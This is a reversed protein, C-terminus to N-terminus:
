PSVARQTPIPMPAASRQSATLRRRDSLELDRAGAVDREHRDVVACVPRLRREEALRREPRELARQALELAAVEARGHDRALREEEGGAGVDGLERVDGALARDLACAGSVLKEAAQARQRKGGDGRDVAGTEAAADLEREVAARARDRRATRCKANGSTKRPSKGAQPPVCSSGRSTPGSAATLTITEFGSRCFRISVPARPAHLEADGVAQEVRDLEDVLRERERPLQGLARELAGSGSQDRPRSSRGGRM